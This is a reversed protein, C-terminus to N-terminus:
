DESLFRTSEITADWDTLDLTPPPVAVTTPAGPAASTHQHTVAWNQLSARWASLLTQLKQALALGQTVSAPAARSIFQGGGGAAPTGELLVGDDTFNLTMLPDAGGTERFGVELGDDNWTLSTEIQTNSPRKAPDDKSIFRLTQGNRLVITLPEGTAPLSADAAGAAVESATGLLQGAVPGTGAFSLDLVLHGDKDLELVSGNQVVRRLPADQSSYESRHRAERGPTSTAEDGLQGSLEGEVRVPAPGVAIPINWNGDMPELIVHDGNLEPITKGQLQTELWGYLDQGGQIPDAAPKPVWQSTTGAGGGGGLVVWPFLHMQRGATSGYALVACYRRAVTQPVSTDPTPTEGPTAWFPDPRGDAKPGAGVDYVHLVVGRLSDRSPEPSHASQHVRGRSRTKHKM